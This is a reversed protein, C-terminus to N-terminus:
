ITIREAQSKEVTKRQHGDAAKCEPLKEGVNREKEPYENQSKLGAMKRGRQREQRKTKKRM